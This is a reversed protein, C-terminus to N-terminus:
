FDVVKAVIGEVPEGMEHVHRRKQRREKVSHLERLDTPEDGAARLGREEEVERAAIEGDVAHRSSSSRILLVVEVSGGSLTIRESSESENVARHVKLEISGNAPKAL